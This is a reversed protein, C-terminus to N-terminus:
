LENLEIPQCVARVNYSTYKSQGIIVGKFKCNAVLCSAVQNPTVKTQGRDVAPDGDLSEIM